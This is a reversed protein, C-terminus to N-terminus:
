AFRDARIESYLYSAMKYRGCITCDAWPPNGDYLTCTGGAAGACVPCTLNEM